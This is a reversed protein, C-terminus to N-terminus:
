NKLSYIKLNSQNTKMKKVMRMKLYLNKKRPSKKKLSLHFGKKTL